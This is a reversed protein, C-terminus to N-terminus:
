RFTSLLAVLIGDVRCSIDPTVVVSIHQHLFNRFILNTKHLLLGVAPATKRQHADFAHFRLKRPSRRNCFAPPM